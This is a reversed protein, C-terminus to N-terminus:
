GTKAGLTEPVHKEKFRLGIAYYGIPPYLYAGINTM